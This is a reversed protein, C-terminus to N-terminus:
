YKGIKFETGWLEAGGATVVPTGVAPGATLLVRDGVIRDVTVAERVYTRTDPNTYVFTSGDPQYLLAAYPVVKLVVPPTRTGRAPGVPEETVPAIQIATREVAKETLVLRSVGSDGIPEVTAPSEAPPAATSADACASLPVGIAIVLATFWRTRGQM